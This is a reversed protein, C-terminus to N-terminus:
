FFMVIHSLFMYKSMETKISMPIAHMVCLIFTLGTLYNYLKVGTEILGWIYGGVDICCGGCYLSINCMIPFVYSINPKRNKYVGHHHAYCIFHISM